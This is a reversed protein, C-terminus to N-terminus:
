PATQEMNWGRKLRWSGMGWCRENSAKGIEVREEKGGSSDKINQWGPGRQKTGERPVRSSLVGLIGYHIEYNIQSKKKTQSAGYSIIAKWCLM